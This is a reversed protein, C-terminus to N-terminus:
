GTLCDLAAGRRPTCHSHAHSHAHCVYAGILEKLKLVHVNLKLDALHPALVADGGLNEPLLAAAFKEVDPAPKAQYALLM